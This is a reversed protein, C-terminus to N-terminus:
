RLYIYREAKILDLRKLLFLVAVYLALSSGALAIGLVAYILEISFSFYHMLIMNSYELLLTAIAGSLMLLIPKIRPTKFHIISCWIVYLYITVLGFLISAWNPINKIENSKIITNVIMGMCEPGSVNGIPTWFVDEGSTAAGIIVIKDKIRNEYSKIDKYNIIPIKVDTFNINHIKDVTKTKNIGYANVIEYPFSNLTDNKVTKSYSYSRLTEYNLRIPTNMYGQTINKDVFFSSYLSDNRLEAGCVLSANASYITNMLEMNDLHRDDAEFLLDLAIVRVKCDDLEKIVQAIAKRSRLASIDVVFVENSEPQTGTHCIQYYLDSMKFDKIASKVPILVSINFVLSILIAVILVTILTIIFHSPYKFYKASM